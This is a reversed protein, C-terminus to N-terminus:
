PVLVIGRAAALGGPAPAGTRPGSGPGPGPPPARATARRREPAPLSRCGALLAARVREIDAPRGRPLPILGGGHGGEHGGGHGRGRGRAPATRLAEAQAGLDFCWVPLGTALAEHTTFSFTEPWISPIFWRDIGYRAALAPIEGPRYRGHVRTGRALPFAPDVTGIVVLRADRDRALRRSLAQLVAAGKQRGIHGPVGIVPVGPRRLIAPAAPAAPLRHPVVRIRAALQPWVALLIARSDRSFVTIRGARRLLAGWEAQWEALTIRGGGPLPLAHAPDDTAGPRPPGRYRGDRDLLTYSPSLMLYDHVLVEATCGPSGALSLLIGPLEAPAPDGVGCSYVIRRRPLLMVLRRMLATDGTEGCTIGAPGHLEIRWRLPGGVRLVVAGGRAVEQALQAALAREAGGGLSHALIVPVRDHRRAALWALALALRASRLPDGRIFEQVEADFRPYRRSLLAGGRQRRHAREAATFSATGRHEVFLAANGLHRGGLARTRRCWDVEEGYGRGFAPDFRPVRRLWAINLAMCFGVGTPAEALALTPPLRAALRDIAAAEGRRLPLRTCIAPVTFLEADNSMPTVSAVDPQSMLPALLRGLWGPPVLADSNLLVVHDGLPLALALARNLAATLGLNRPSEIVTVRGATDPPLGARWARLWPRVRPDTSGDEVVILRWPLDGHAVVRGLARPLLDFANFVPMIITATVGAPAPAPGGGDMLALRADLPGSPPGSGPGLAARIRARSAPDRHRLWHGIEARLRLLM